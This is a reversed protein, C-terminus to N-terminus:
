NMFFDKFIEKMKAGDELFSSENDSYARKFLGRRSLFRKLVNFFSHSTLDSVLELHVAKRM